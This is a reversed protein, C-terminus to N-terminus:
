KVKKQIASIIGAAEQAYETAKNYGAILQKILKDNDNRVIIKGRDLTKTQQEIYNVFDLVVVVEEVKPSDDAYVVRSMIKKQCENNSQDIM